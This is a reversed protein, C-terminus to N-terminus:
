EVIIKVNLDSIYKLEDNPIDKIMLDGIYKVYVHGNEYLNKKSSYKGVEFLIYMKKRYLFYQSVREKNIGSFVGYRYPSDYVIIYNYTQNRGSHWYRSWGDDWKDNISFQFKPRGDLFDYFNSIMGVLYRLDTIEYSVNIIIDSKNGNNRVNPKGISLHNKESLYRFLEDIHHREDKQKDIDNLSLNFLSGREFTLKLTNENKDIKEFLIDRKEKLNKYDSPNVNKLQLSVQELEELLRKNETQLSVIQNERVKDTKIEKVKKELVGIDVSSKIKIKLVTTKNELLSVEESLLSTKIIGSTYTKIDDKSIVGSKVITENELYTGVQEVAKLKGNEIAIKRAEVKTDNDGMVYEGITEVDYVQPFTVTPIFLLFISM